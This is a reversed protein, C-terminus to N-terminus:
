TIILERLGAISVVSAMGNDQGDPYLGDENRFWIAQMGLQRPAQFDKGVHDGIYVVDEYDMKWRRCMIRFALDCPKRFQAGGLEDTIIADLCDLGLAKIKNRQGSPRGDTIIGVKQGNAQLEEILRGVGEYLHLVPKHERYIEVCKQRENERGLTKLVMDIARQGNQFYEWLKDALGGDGLHKAVARFGSRVYEKESYLTDDLDFIVGKAPFTKKTNMCVSQDFRSYIAGDQVHPVNAIKSDIKTNLLGLLAEASNAGAKMSLPSGGGFRPNIEIYHDKGGGDRILQVTIPGCPCFQEVIRGCERVIRNDMCIMAKLVEGARVALRKRPTIYIPNGSFDCFIDVTYEVGDIFPQIIYGGIKGAYTELEERNKAQYANISSSGDKPKIFCPYAGNFDELKDIPKPTELSCSKFFYYAKKKDRCIRVMEPSSVLVRIGRAEFRGKNEALMLLNTDVTPIILDIKEEAGKKLLEELYGKDKIGCLKIRKDCFALAPAAGDIDEGYIVAEEGIKVAANRFAQILEVRRGVSLFLIKKM